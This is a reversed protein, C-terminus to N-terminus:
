VNGVPPISVGFVNGTTLQFFELILKRLSFSVNADVPAKEM